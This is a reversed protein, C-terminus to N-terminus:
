EAAKVDIALANQLNQYDELIRRRWKELDSLVEDLEQYKSGTEYVV